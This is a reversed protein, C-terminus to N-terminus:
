ERFVRFKAFTENTPRSLKGTRTPPLNTALPSTPASDDILVEGAGGGEHTVIPRAPDPGPGFGGHNGIITAPGIEDCDIKCVKGRGRLSITFAGSTKTLGRAKEYIIAGTAPDNFVADAHGSTGGCGGEKGKRGHENVHTSGPRHGPVNMSEAILDRAVGPKVTKMASEEDLCNKVHQGHGRMGPTAEFAVRLYPKRYPSFKM